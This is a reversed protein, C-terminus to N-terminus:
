ASDGTITVVLGKAADMYAPYSVSEIRLTLEVDYIITDQLTPLAVRGNGADDIVAPNYQAGGNAALAFAYDTDADYIDNTVSIKRIRLGGQIASRGLFFTGNELIEDVELVRYQLVIPNQVLTNDTGAVIFVKPLWDCDDNCDPPCVTGPDDETPFAFIFGVRFLSDSYQVSITATDLEEDLVIATITGALFRSSNTLTQGDLLFMLIPKSVAMCGPMECAPSYVYSATQNAM